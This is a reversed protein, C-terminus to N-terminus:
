SAVKFGALVAFGDRRWLVETRFGADRLWAIESALPHYFDELAWAALHREAEERTCSQQLHLLWAERHQAALRENRGPFCDANILLGGPALADHCKRYFAQKGAADAVHHLAICSAFVDCAPLPAELFDCERLDIGTGGALRSRAAILMGPDSDLGTIRARPRVELCAAALAGTGIGLDVIHPAEDPVLALAAASIRILEDYHPVFTRIRTDYEDLSIRLHGAVGM